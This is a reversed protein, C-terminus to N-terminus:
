SKVRAQNLQTIAATYASRAVDFSSEFTQKEETSTSLTTLEQRREAQLRKTDMDARRSQLNAEASAVAIQYDIPDIEYLVQGRKVAQNDVIYVHAVRGSVEPAQSVVYALVQGDRTWPATLYHNWIVVCAIAACAVLLLTVAVRVRRRAAALM